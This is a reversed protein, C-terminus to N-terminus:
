EEAGIKRVEAHRMLDIIIRKVDIIPIRTDNSIEKISLGRDTSNLEMLVQAKYGSFADKDAAEKGRETLVVVDDSVVNFSQRSFLPPFSM